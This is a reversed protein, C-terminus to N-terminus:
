TAASPTASSASASPCRIATAPFASASSIATPRWPAPPWPRCAATCRTSATAGSIFYAPTKSSCGIGSLKIVKEPPVALEFFAQVIAATISDHGCGACLTSLGGEYDRITLGIENTKQNPLDIRPKAIYTM